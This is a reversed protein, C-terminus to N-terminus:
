GIKARAFAFRRETVEEAAVVAEAAATRDLQGLVVSTVVDSTLDTTVLDDAMDLMESGAQYGSRYLMTASLPLVLVVKMASSRFDERIVELLGTGDEEMYPFSSHLMVVRPRENIITNRAKRVESIEDITIGPRADRLVKRLSKIRDRDADVIMIDLRTEM